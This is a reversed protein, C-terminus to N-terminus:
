DSSSFHVALQVRADISAGVPNCAPARALPCADRRRGVAGLQDSSFIVALQVRADISAGVPRDPKLGSEDVATMPACLAQQLEDDLRARKRRKSVLETMMEEDREYGRKLLGAGGGESPTPQTQSVGKWLLSM